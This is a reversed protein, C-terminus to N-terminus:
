AESKSKKSHKKILVVIGVIIAVIIILIVVMLWIPCVLITKEVTSVEDFIKVVQKARFLGAIPLTCRQVYYREMQPMILNTDADEENTCIEEDSFMPWVQLTYKADTHVNGTNRVLSTAELENTTSFSPINNELIDATNITEGAVEAYIISAMQVNSQINVNGSGSSSGTEDKILITAYQGGAPASEPVTITFNLIDTTNPAVIGTDKGLTIWNMIQNYSTITETDVSDDDASSGNHSFSGVTASYKLDNQANNPASIKLSLTTTEGPILIVKQYMPSVTIASIPVDDAYTSASFIGSFAVALAGILAIISIKLKKM